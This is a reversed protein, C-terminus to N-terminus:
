NAAVPTTVAVPDVPTEAISLIYNVLHWVDDETLGKEGEGAAMAAAPMTAGPIGFKIRRYLDSPQRGGRFHGAVINRPKLPQPKMGGRALLPLLADYDTPTIGIKATWDKTWDDYDAAQPGDGLGSTGHCKSCAADPGLFLEKGRAISNALEEKQDETAKGVLPIEPDDLEFVREEASIWSDAISTLSETARDLQSQYAEKGRADTANKLSIDYLREVKSPDDDFLTLDTSAVKLLNRELEGRVSLFVVYEVLADRQADTLNQFKPMQSDGLGRVLTHNLDEKLPKGARNTSKYKFWGNRFERPYPNQSAAVPGRGQGSEGHCSACQQRYLGTTGPEKSEPAPGVAMKMKELSLFDKYDEEQFLPPLKPDDLTGFWETLLVQVDKRPQEMDVDEGIGIAHAYLYNSEHLAVKNQDNVCGSNPILFATAVLFAFITHKMISTQTLTFQRLAVHKSVHVHTSQMVQSLVGRRAATVIEQSREARYEEM